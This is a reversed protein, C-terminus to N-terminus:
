SSRPIKIRTDRSRIDLRIVPMRNLASNLAAYTGGRRRQPDVVAILAQADRIMWDNRHFLLDRSYSPGLVAVRAAGERVRHHHQQWQTTWRDPQQPFPQYLWVDLGAQTAADAWWLDSGMAGGSIAIRTGHVDRLKAAVRALEALTWKLSPDPIHRHGTLAVRSWSHDSAGALRSRLQMLLRGLMNNGPKSRHKVCSCDGWVDDHWDNREILLCDGTAILQARLAPDTFKAELVEAMVVYRYHSDWEPRLAVQRGLKKARGPDQEAAIKARLVLDLTKGAAFAAEATAFTHGEWVLPSPSFNSLWRNRGDFGDIIDAEVDSTVSIPM